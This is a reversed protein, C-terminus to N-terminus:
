RKRAPPRRSAPGPRRARSHFDHDRLILRQIEARQREGLGGASDHVLGLLGAAAVDVV